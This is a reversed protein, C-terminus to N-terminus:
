FPTVLHRFTSSKSLFHPRLQRWESLMITAKPSSQQLVNARSESNIVFCGKPSRHLGVGSADCVDRPSFGDFKFGEFSWNDGNGLQSWDFGAHQSGLCANDTNEPSPYCQDTGWWKLSRTLVSYTTMTRFTSVLGSPHAFVGVNLLSLLAFTKM